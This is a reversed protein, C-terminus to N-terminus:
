LNMVMILEYTILILYLFPFVVLLAAVKIKGRWLYRNKLVLLVTLGLSTLTWKVLIFPTPGMKLFYDMVPNIELFEADMLRITLLADFVSLVLTTLFLALFLPSYLDVFYHKRADEKRRFDRRSGFLSRPSLPSTASARRDKGSRRERFPYDNKNLEKM